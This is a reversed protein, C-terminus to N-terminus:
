KADKSELFLPMFLCIEDDDDIAFSGVRLRILFVAAIMLFDNSILADILYNFTSMRFFM